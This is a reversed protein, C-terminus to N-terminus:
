QEKDRHVIHPVLEVTVPRYVIKIYKSKYKTKNMLFISQPLCCFSNVANTSKHTCCCLLQQWNQMNQLLLHEQTWGGGAKNMNMLTFNGVDSHLLVWPSPWPWAAAALGLLTRSSAGSIWRHPGSRAAVRAGTWRVSRVLWNEAQGTMALIKLWWRAKCNRVAKSHLWRLTRM